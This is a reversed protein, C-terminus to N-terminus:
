PGPSAFDGRQIDMLISLSSLHQPFSHPSLPPPSFDFGPVFSIVAFGGALAAPHAPCLRYGAAARPEYFSPRDRSALAPALVWPHVRGRPPVSTRSRVPGLLSTPQARPGHTLWWSSGGAHGGGTGAVGKVPTIGATGGPASSSPAAGPALPSRTDIFAGLAAPPTPGLGSSQGMELAGSLFDRTWLASCRLQSLLAFGARSRPAAPAATLAPSARAGGAGRKTALSAPAVSCPVPHASRPPQWPLVHPSRPTPPTQVTSRAPIPM